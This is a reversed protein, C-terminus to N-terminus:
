NHLELFYGYRGWLPIKGLVEGSRQFNWNHKLCKQLNKPRMSGREVRSIGIGETPPLMSIKQFQVNEYFSKEHTKSKPL